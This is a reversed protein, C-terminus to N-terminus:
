HEFRAKQKQKVSFCLQKQKTPISLREMVVIVVQGNPKTTSSFGLLELLKRLVEIGNCKITNSKKDGM